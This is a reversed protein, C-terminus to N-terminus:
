NIGFFFCHYTNGVQVASNLFCNNQGPRNLLGKANTFSGNVEGSEIPDFHQQYARHQHAIRRQQHQQHRLLCSQIYDPSYDPGGTVVADQHSATAMAPSMM